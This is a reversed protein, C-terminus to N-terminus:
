RAIRELGPSNRVSINKVDEALKAPEVGEAVQAKFGDIELGDINVFKAAPRLDLEKFSFDMGNLKLGKVHRAFIGYAPMNGKGNPDPYGTGLEKPVMSADKETGGGNSIIHINKLQIGEIPQDKMGFIQIGSMMDVGDAVVDTITINKMRSAASADPNRNRSGTVIYLAYNKINSMKLNSASINELIGGDVQELAFGMSDLFVCNSITCNRFGGTSETGFKIRANRRDKPDPQMTGDMLTGIKFGSVQCNEISLNETIRLEGLVYTSKPCIADDEPTNVKCDRVLVNRCCDIDIGDRNSDITLNEMKVDECGTALVAFWGGKFITIGSIGVNRCLKLSIAKNAAYTKGEPDAPAAPSDGQSGKGFGIKDNLKGQWTTLGAGDIMGEGAISINELNEGWILSNRFFSHGGDQYATKATFPETPDYSKSDWKDAVIVADKGIHLSVGSKMRISGCFYRGKPLLVTGGGAAAAVDIAKNVAPSDLAKGDGKAGHDLVNFVKSDSSIFAKPGALAGSNLIAITILSSIFRRSCIMTLRVGIKFDIADAVMTGYTTISSM